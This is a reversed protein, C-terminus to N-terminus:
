PSARCVDMARQASTQLTRHHASLLCSVPGRPLDDARRASLDSAFGRCDADVCYPRHTLGADCWLVGWSRTQETRWFPRMSCYIQRVLALAQTSEM